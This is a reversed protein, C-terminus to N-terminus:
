FGGMRTDVPRWVVPSNPNWRPPFGGSAPRKAAPVEFGGSWVVHSAEIGTMYNGREDREVGNIDNMGAGRGTYCFVGPAPTDVLEAGDPHPNSSTCVRTTTFNRLPAGAANSPALLTEVM